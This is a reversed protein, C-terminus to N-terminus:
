LTLANYLYRKGLRQENNKELWYFQIDNRFEHDPNIWTPEVGIAREYDNLDLKTKEKIKFGAQIFSDKYIKRDIIKNFGPFHINIIVAKNTLDYLQKVVKNLDKELVHNLVNSCFVLDFTGTPFESYKKINPDYKTLYDLYLNTNGCGFDLVSKADYYDFFFRSGAIGDRTNFYYDLKKLKSM